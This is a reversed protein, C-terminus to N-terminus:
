PNRRLETLCIPAPAAFEAFRRRFDECSPSYSVPKECANELLVRAALVTGTLIRFCRDNPSAASGKSGQLVGYQFRLDYYLDQGNYQKSRSPAKDLPYGLVSDLQMINWFEFFAYGFEDDLLGDMLHEMADAKKEYEIKAYEFGARCYQLLYTTGFSAKSWGHACYQRTHQMEHILTRTNNIFDTNDLWPPGFLTAKAVFYMDHNITIAGYMELKEKGVDYHVRFDKTTLYDGYIPYLFFTQDKFQSPDTNSNGLSTTMLRLHKFTRSERWLLGEIASCHSMMSVIPVGPGPSRMYVLAAEALYGPLTTTAFYPCVVDTPVIQTIAKVANNSAATIQKVAEKGVHSVGDKIKKMSLGRLGGRAQLTYNRYPPSFMAIGINTLTVVSANLEPVIKAYPVGLQELVIPLAYAISDAIDDLYEDTNFHALLTENKPLLVPITLTLSGFMSSDKIQYYPLTPSEKLEVVSISVTETDSDGPIIDGTTSICQDSLISVEGCSNVGYPIDCLTDCKV